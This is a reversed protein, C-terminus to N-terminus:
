SHPLTAMAATGSTPGAATPATARGLPPEPAMGRLAPLADLLQQRTLGLLAHREVLVDLDVPYSNGRGPDALGAVNRPAIARAVWAAFAHREAASGVEGCGRTIHRLRALAKRFVPELVADGVGLFGSRAALPDGSIRQSVEAFSVTAFYLMAHAAFLEFHAMSEYAGAVLADIQDAEAALSEDYRELQGTDPVGDGDRAEGFALALREVARLSWAIGTSYLPDVFAYAHPLLAWREGTARMLRHQVMPRFTLPFLPEAEAFAAGITPYRELLTHWLSGPDRGDSGLTRMGEPTLLFGASTVGHDFRLSYMWGEDIVHHVAAWDDPYPGAPMRPLLEAMPRVGTFHSFVIASRTATADLGSPIALQRALFGGPGSADVVFKADLVFPEGDRRGTLRASDPGFAVGTLESCDRYDVGEAVAERVFHQDVDARLWHTDAIADEPSAAVLLREMMGGGDDLPQHPHHRYYTFGRKLGRRLEPHHAMWRGHTALHYCDPLGYRIAIRELSLNALPTTSEGIAFRPHTGRELLVVEYGQVALIRALLSGAFGSGVIAVDFREKVDNRM